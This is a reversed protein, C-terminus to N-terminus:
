DEAIDRQHYDPPAEFVWCRATAQHGKTAQRIRSNISKNAIFKRNRSNKLHRKLTLQDPVHIRMEGALAEFEKLSVGILREDKSHNLRGGAGLNDLYDFAEWFEEVIPHDAAIAKQREGACRRLTAQTDDLIPAPLPLLLALADVLAAIQAHNKAIRITKIEPDAMIAREHEPQRQRVTDLIRGEHSIAHILFHSVDEVPIRELHEAVAKTDRNHGSRDFPLHILREHIAQSAQVQANQSICIAGRFPPEYTDTGANKVGTSRIARGNYATKLEDFDSRRSKPQDDDRDSEILVIPLNSVQAFNRGRAALSSKSPGFGEYDRRGVLKWLFEILTSKGAGPEGIIEVFPYSKHLERIQEAFLRGLWWALAIIGKAGFCTHIDTAWGTHFREHETAIHLAVSQNLTKISLKGLDFFDEDNVRVVKGAQVAIQNYVYARHERSYGVFDVTDVIKLNYLLDQAIRDLEAAGGTFVAGAAVSLLRKKFESASSM